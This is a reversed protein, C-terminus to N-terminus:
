VDLMFFKPGFRFQLQLRDEVHVISLDGQSIIDMGIVFDFNDPLRDVEFVEVIIGHRADGPLAVTLAVRGSVSGALGQAHSRESLVPLDLFLSTSKLIASHEAGTDWIGDILVERHSVSNILRVPTVIRKPSAIFTTFTDSQTQM